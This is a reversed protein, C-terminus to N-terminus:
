VQSTKVRWFLLFSKYNSIFLITNLAYKACAEKPSRSKAVTGSFGRITAEGLEWNMKALSLFIAGIFLTAIARPAPPAAAAFLGALCARLKM